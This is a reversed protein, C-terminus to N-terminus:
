DLLPHGARRLAGAVARRVLEPRREIHNPAIGIWHFALASYNSNRDMDHDFNDAHHERSDVELLLGHDPRFVEPRRQARYGIMLDARFRVRGSVMIPVQRWVDLGFSRLLQVARTEAYSETPPEDGRLALVEHLLRDGSMSGGRGASVAVGLRLAHEVALEVRDRPCIGDDVGTLDDPYANLHRIALSPPCVLQGGVEIPDEWARTRIIRHGPDAGHPVCWLNPWVRDRFGDLGFLAAAAPGTLAMKRQRM